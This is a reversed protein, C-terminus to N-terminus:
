RKREQEKLWAIVNAALSAEYGRFSHDAGEIRVQRYTESVLSKRNEASSLDKPSRDAYVDIVPVRLRRVNHNTDLPAGGGQLMGVGIYGRVAPHPREALFSTTMRAGMSHGMLYIRTVGKEKVLFDIASQIVQYAQPFTAAYDNFDNGAVTPMQLSLTHFGLERHMSRRLPGVVKSDPGSGRGHALVVAASGQGELYKSGSPQAWVSVAWFCAIGIVWGRLIHM